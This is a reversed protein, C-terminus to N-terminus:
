AMLSLHAPAAILFNGCVRSQPLNGVRKMRSHSYCLVSMGLSIAITTRM